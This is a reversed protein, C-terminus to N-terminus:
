GKEEGAEVAPPDRAQGLFAASEEGIPSLDFSRSKPQWVAEFSRSTNANTVSAIAPATMTASASHSTCATARKRGGSSDSGCQV